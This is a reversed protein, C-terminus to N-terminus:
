KGLAKGNISKIADEIKSLRSEYSKQNEYLASVLMLTGRHAAAQNDDMEDWRVHQLTQLGRRLQVDSRRKRNLALMQHDGAPALRYGVGRVNHLTRRCEKLLRPMTRSVLGCVDSRSFRRAADAELASILMEYRYLEGPEGDKVTSILVEADSRGDKRTIEFERAM